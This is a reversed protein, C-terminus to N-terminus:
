NNFEQNTVLKMSIAHIDKKMISDLCDYILKHRKILTMNEFDDSIYIAGENSYQKFIEDPEFVVDGSRGTANGPTFEHYTYNSGFKVTHRQNPQYLFDIKTNAIDIM